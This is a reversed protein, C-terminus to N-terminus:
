RKVIIREQKSLVVNSKPVASCALVYGKEQDEISLGDTALQEVDGSELKIKCRGCMGGRCSYPLILGANEGQDLISETNNGTFEKNWSSFNLTPKKTTNANAVMAPETKKNTNLPSIVFVPPVKRELVELKDGKKIQGQNLPVLNQGFMVDGDDVQRFTKLTRLPEQQYNIEATEPNITTFICRSCPKTVEFEVEGIRVHSWTDEEFGDCGDVVVNPRFNSMTVQNKDSLRKNLHILSQQSILLLPYGDAFGVQSNKNKVFRESKEGFFLLQCPKELYRSFWQNYSDTSHQSHIVSSWVTIDQYSSSLKAYEISLIPMGPATINLGTATLNAQILCLRTDTRATIVEGELTAVAFRRDFSLGCEEVWSNSLQIGSTSKIPYITISQLSINSVLM